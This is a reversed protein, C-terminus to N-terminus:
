WIFQNHKECTFLGFQIILILVFLIVLVVFPIQVYKKIYDDVKQTGGYKWLILIFSIFPIACLFCLLSIIYFM